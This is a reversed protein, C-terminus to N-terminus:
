AAPKTKGKVKGAKPARKKKGNLATRLAHQVERLAKVMQPDLRPANRIKAMQRDLWTEVDVGKKAFADRIENKIQRLSKPGMM